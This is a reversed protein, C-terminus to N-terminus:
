ESSEAATQDSRSALQLEVGFHCPRETAATLLKPYSCALCSCLFRLEFFQATCPRWRECDGLRANECKSVLSYVM